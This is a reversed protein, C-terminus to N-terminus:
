YYQDGRWELITFSYKDVSIQCSLQEFMEWKNKSSNNLQM